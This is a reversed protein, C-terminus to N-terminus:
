LLPVPPTTGQDYGPPGQRLRFCGSSASYRLYMECSRSSPHGCRVDLPCWRAREAEPINFGDDHSTIAALFLHPVCAEPFERVWIFNPPPYLDLRMAVPFQAWFTTRCWGIDFDSYFAPWDSDKARPDTVSCVRRGRSGLLLFFHSSGQPFRGVVSPLLGIM